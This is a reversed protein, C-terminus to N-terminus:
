SEYPLPKSYRDNEYILDAIFHNLMSVNGLKVKNPLPSDFFLLLYSLNM